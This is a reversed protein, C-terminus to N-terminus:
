QDHYASEWAFHDAFLRRAARRLADQLSEDAAIEIVLPAASRTRHGDAFSRPCLGEQAILANLAAELQAALDPPEALGETILSQISLTILADTM